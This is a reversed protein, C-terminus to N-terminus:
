SEPRVGTVSYVVWEAINTAHDGIREFYKAVMLLDICTEGASPEAAILAILERKVGDFLGDVVDDWAMVARAAGADKKVFSDVSATVMKISERAMQRLKELQAAGGAPIYGALEAIDRAQDGIREMDSVMKLASSVTRLDRAVPQQRLLLSMCLDEITREQADTREEIDLVKLRLADEGGDLVAKASAAIAEECMAGMLALEGNLRELQEDFGSRMM